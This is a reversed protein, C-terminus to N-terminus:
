GIKIKRVPLFIPKQNQISASVNNLFAKVDSENNIDKSSKEFDYNQTDKDFILSINLDETAGNESGVLLSWQVEIFNDKNKVIVDIFPNGNEDQINYVCTGYVSAMDPTWNLNSLIENEKNKNKLMNM